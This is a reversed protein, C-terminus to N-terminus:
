MKELRYIKSFHFKIIYIFYYNKVWNGGYDLCNQKTKIHPEIKEDIDM